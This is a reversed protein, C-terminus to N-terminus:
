LNIKIIMNNNYQPYRTANVFTSIIEDENNFSNESPIANWTFLNEKLIKFINCELQRRAQMAKLMAANSINKNKYLKYV